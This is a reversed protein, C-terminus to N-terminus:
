AAVRLQRIPQAPAIQHRLLRQLIPPNEARRRYSSRCPRRRYLRVIGSFIASGDPTCPDAQALREAIALGDRYSTLAITPDGQAVRVDRAYPAALLTGLRADPRQSRFFIACRNEAEKPPPDISHRRGSFPEGFRLRNSSSPKSTRMWARKPDGLSAIAGLNRYSAAADRTDRKIRASTRGRCRASFRKPRPVNRLM